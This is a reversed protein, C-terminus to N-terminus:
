FRTLNTPLNGRSRKEGQADGGDPAISGTLRSLGSRCRGASPPPPASRALLPGVIVVEMFSVAIVRALASASVPHTDLVASGFALRVRSPAIRPPM